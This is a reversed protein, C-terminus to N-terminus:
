PQKSPSPPTSLERMARAAAEAAARLRPWRGDSLPARNPNDHRMFADLEDLEALQATGM